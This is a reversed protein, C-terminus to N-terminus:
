FRFLLREAYFKQKHLYDLSVGIHRRQKHYHSPHLRSSVIFRFNPSTSPQKLM